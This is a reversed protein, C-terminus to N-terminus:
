ENQYATIGQLVGKFDTSILTLFVPLTWGLGFALLSLFFGLFVWGPFLFLLYLLISMVIVCCKMYGINCSWDLGTKGPEYVKVTICKPLSLLLVYVVLALDLPFSHKRFECHMFYDINKM